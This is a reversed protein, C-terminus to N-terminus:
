KRRWDTAARAGVLKPGRRASCSPEGLLNKLIRSKRWRYVPIRGPNWSLISPPHWRSYFISPFNPDPHRSYLVRNPVISYTVSCSLKTCFSYGMHSAGIELGARGPKSGDQTHVSAKDPIHRRLSSDPAQTVYGWHKSFIYIYFMFGLRQHLVAFVLLSNYFTVKFREELCLAM